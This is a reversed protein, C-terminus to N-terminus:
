GVKQIIHAEFARYAWIVLLITLVATYGVGYLWQWGALPVFAGRMLM